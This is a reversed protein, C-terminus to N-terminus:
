GMEEFKLASVQLLFQVALENGVLKLIAHAIEGMVMLPTEMM